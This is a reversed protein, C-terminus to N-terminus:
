HIQEHERAGQHHFFIPYLILFEIKKYSVKNGYSNNKILRLDALDFSSCRVM